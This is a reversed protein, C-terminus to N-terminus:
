DRKDSALILLCFILLVSYEIGGSQHGVVFWGNPLHVLFIGCILILIFGLSMWKQLFGIALLFGGLIDYITISTSLIYPFPIGKLSLFDGFDSISKYYIRAIGHSIMTLGILIRLGKLLFKTSLSPIKEKMSKSPKM